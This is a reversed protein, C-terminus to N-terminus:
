PNVLESLVQFAAAERAAVDKGTVLGQKARFRLVRDAGRRACLAIGLALHQV